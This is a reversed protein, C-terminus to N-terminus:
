GALDAHAAPQDDVAPREGADGAVAALDAMQRDVRGTLHAATSRDAAPLGLDPRHGQEAPGTPVRNASPGLHVGEEGVGRRARRLHQGGERLGAAPETEAQGAQEVDQVWPEDDEAPEELPDMRPDRRDDIGLQISPGQGRRAPEDPDNSM